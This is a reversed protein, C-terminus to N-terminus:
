LAFDALRVNFEAPDLAGIAGESNGHGRLDIAVLRHWERLKPDALQHAWAKWSASFGHVFVIPRGTPNGTSVAHIQVGDATTVIHHTLAM